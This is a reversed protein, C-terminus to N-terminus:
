RGPTLHQLREMAGVFEWLVSAGNRRPTEIVWEAFRAAARHPSSTHRLHTKWWTIVVEGGSNMCGCHDM